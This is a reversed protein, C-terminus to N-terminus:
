NNDSNDGKKKLRNRTRSNDSASSDARRKFVLKDSSKSSKRINKAQNKYNLITSSARPM